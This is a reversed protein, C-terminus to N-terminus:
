WNALTEAWDLKQPPFGDIFSIAFSDDANLQRAADRENTWWSCDSVANHDVNPDPGSCSKGWSQFQRFDPKGNRWRVGGYMMCHSWSGSAGVVGDANRKMQGFGVGSCVAIPYGNEIAVAAEETTTVPALTVPYRKAILDLKGDERGADDRGGCGFNGWEKAKDGSYRTLDHDAIGTEKSYDLRLVCGWDRLWKSAAGGYSGDRYGGLRGGDAEVRSGGYIAETAAETIWECNGLRAQIALVMTCCLEFGWSVCDGIAQAHRVWDPKVELLPLWLNVDKRATRSRMADVESFSRIPLSEIFRKTGERNPVYGFNGDLSVIQDNM